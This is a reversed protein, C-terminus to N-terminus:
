IYVVSLSIFLESILVSCVSTFKWISYRPNELVENLAWSVSDSTVNSFDLSVGLGESVAWFVNRHQDASLPIGVIPVGRDITEQTSLMGGHTM